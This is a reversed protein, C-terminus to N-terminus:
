NKDWLIMNKREQDFEIKHVGCLHIEERCKQEAREILSLSDLITFFNRSTTEDESSEYCSNLERFIIKRMAHCTEALSENINTYGPDWLLIGLLAMNETEDFGMAVLPNNVNEYRYAWYPGFIQNIENKSLKGNEYFRDAPKAVAGSPSYFKTPDNYKRSYISLELINWKIIFNYFLTKKDQQCLANFEPFTTECLRWILKIDTMIEISFEHVDLEKSANPHKNFVSLRTNELNRYNETTCHIRDLHRYCIGPEIRLKYSNESPAFSSNRGGIMKMKKPNEIVDRPGQIQDRQMGVALCKEM